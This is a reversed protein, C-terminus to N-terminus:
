AARRGPAGAERPETWSELAGVQAPTFTSVHGNRCSATMRSPLQATRGREMEWLTVREGCVCTYGLVLFASQMIGNYRCASSRAEWAM